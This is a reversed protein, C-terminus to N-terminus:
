YSYYYDHDYNDDDDYYRYYCYYCYSYYFYFCYYYYYYYYYYAANLVLPQLLQQQIFLLMHICKRRVSAQFSKLNKPSGAETCHTMCQHYVALCFTGYRIRSPQAALRSKAQESRALLSISGDRGASIDSHPTWASLSWSLSTLAAAGALKITM